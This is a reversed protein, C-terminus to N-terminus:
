WCFFHYRILRVNLSKIKKKKKKFFPHFELVTNLLFCVYGGVCVCVSILLINASSSQCSSIKAATSLSCILDKMVSASNCWLSYRTRSARRQTILAPLVAGKLSIDCCHRATSLVADSKVPWLYSGLVERELSLRTVM